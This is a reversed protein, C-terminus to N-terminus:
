SLVDETKNQKQKKKNQAQMTQLKMTDTGTADTVLYNLSSFDKAHEEDFFVTRFAM